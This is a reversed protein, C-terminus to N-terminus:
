RMNRRFANLSGSARESPTINMFLEIHVPRAAAAGLRSHRVPVLPRAHRAPRAFEVAPLGAWAGPLADGRLPAIHLPGTSFSYEGSTGDCAAISVKYDGPLLFAKQAHGLM